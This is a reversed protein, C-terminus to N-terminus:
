NILTAGVGTKAKWNDKKYLSANTQLFSVFEQHKDLQQGAALRLESEKATSPFQSRFFAQQRRRLSAFTYWDPYCCKVSSVDEFNDAYFNDVSM